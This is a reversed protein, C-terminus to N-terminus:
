RHQDADAFTERLTLDEAVDLCARARDFLDALAAARAGVAAGTFARELGHEFLASEDARAPQDVTPLRGAQVGRSGGSHVTPLAVPNLCM